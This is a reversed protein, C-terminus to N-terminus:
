ERGPVFGVDRDSNEVATSRKAMAARSVPSHTSTLLWRLGFGLVVLLMAALLAYQITAAISSQVAGAGVLTAPVAEPLFGLLSGLLFHRHRVTTIGLLVSIQFSTLPILRILIVSILGRNGVKAALQQLKPWKGLLYERGGWRAVLFAGYSGVLSGGLGLLLGPLFGFVAGAMVCLLLRPFGVATLVAVLALFAVAGAWGMAAITSNLRELWTGLRELGAVQALLSAVVIAALLLLAKLLHGGARRDAEAMLQGSANDSAGANM